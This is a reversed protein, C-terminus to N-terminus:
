SSIALRRRRCQSTMPQSGTVSPSATTGRPTSSRTMGMVEASCIPTTAREGNLRDDGQEGSITDDGATGLITDDGSTGYISRGLAATPGSPADNYAVAVGFLSSKGAADTVKIYIDHESTGADEFSAGAKVALRNGNVLEFVSDTVANGSADVIAYTLTDGVDPDVGEL